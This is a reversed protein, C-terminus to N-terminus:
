STKYHTPTHLHPNQLTHTNQYYTYKYKAHKTNNTSHKKYKTIWTYKIKNTKNTSTYPSSGGPSLEIVTTTTTTTTTASIINTELPQHKCRCLFTNEKEDM